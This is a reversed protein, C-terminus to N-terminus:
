DADTHNVPLTRDAPVTGSVDVDPTRASADKATRKGAEFWERFTGRAARLADGVEGEQALAHDLAQRADAVFRGVDALASAIVEQQSSPPEEPTGHQQDPTTV